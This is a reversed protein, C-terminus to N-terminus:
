WYTLREVYHSETLLQPNFVSSSEIKHYRCLFCVVLTAIIIFLICVFYINLYYSKIDSLWWNLRCFLEFLKWNISPMGYTKKTMCQYDIHSLWAEEIEHSLIIYVRQKIHSNVRRICKMKTFSNKSLQQGGFLMWRCGLCLLSIFFVNSIIELSFIDTQHADFQFSFAITM